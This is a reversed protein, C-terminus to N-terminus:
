RKSVPLKMLAPFPAGPLDRVRPGGTAKGNTVQPDDGRNVGRAIVSRQGARDGAQWRADERLRDTCRRELGTMAATPCKRVPSACQRKPTDTMPRSITNGKPM